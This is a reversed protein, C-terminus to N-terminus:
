IQARDLSPSGSSHFMNRPAELWATKKKKKLILYDGEGPKGKLYGAGGM